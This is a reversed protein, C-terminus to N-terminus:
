PGCLPIPSSQEQHTLFVRTRAVPRSNISDSRLQDLDLASNLLTSHPTASRLLMMSPALLSTWNDTTGWRHLFTDFLFYTPAASNNNEILVPVVHPRAMKLRVRLELTASSSHDLDDLDLASNVLTNHPTASRLLVM